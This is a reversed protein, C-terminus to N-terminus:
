AAQKRHPPAVPRGPLTTLHFHAPVSFTSTLETLQHMEKINCSLQYYSRHDTCCFRTSGRPLHSVLKAVSSGQIHFAVYLAAAMMSRPCLSGRRGMLMNRPLNLRSCDISVVVTESNRYGLVSLTAGLLYKHDHLTLLWKFNHDLFANSRYGLREQIDGVALLSEIPGAGM